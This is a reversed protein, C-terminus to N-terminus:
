REKDDVRREGKEKEKKGGMGTSKKERETKNYKKEGVSEVRWAIDKNEKKKEGVRNKRQEGREM